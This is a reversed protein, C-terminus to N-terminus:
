RAARTPLASAAQAPAIIDGQARPGICGNAAVSLTMATGVALFVIAMIKFLRLSTESTMSRM